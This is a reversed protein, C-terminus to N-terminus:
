TGDGRASWLAQSGSGEGKGLREAVTRFLRGRSPNGLSVVRGDLLYAPVAVVDVRPADPAELNVVEVEIQPFRDSAARALMLAEECNACHSAVVVQLKM